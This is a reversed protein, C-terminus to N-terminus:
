KRGNKPRTVLYRIQYIYKNLVEEILEAESNETLDTNAIVKILVDQSKSMISNYVAQEVSLQNIQRM